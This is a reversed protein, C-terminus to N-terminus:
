AGPETFPPATLGITVGLQNYINWAQTAIFEAEENTVSSAHLTGSLAYLSLLNSYVSIIIREFERRGALANQLPNHKLSATLIGRADTLTVTAGNANNYATVLPQTVVESVIREHDPM